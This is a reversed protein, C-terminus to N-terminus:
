QDNKAAHGPRLVSLTCRVLGGQLDASAEYSLHFTDELLQIM